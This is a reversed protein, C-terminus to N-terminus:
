YLLTVLPPLATSEIDLDRVILALAADPTSMDFVGSVERSALEPDVIVIRGRRYRNLEGVVDSLPVRDFILRERQWAMAQSLNVTRVEGLGGAAYRIARGPSVVARQSEDGVFAVEVQHEIVTVEISDTLHRVMFQTGLARALGNEAAVVFPRTESSDTPRATFHAVGSLLEVKRESDTYHVAAASAPGLHLTSGDSLTISRQAGPETRYDATLLLWPDGYWIRAGGVILLLCAALAVIQARIGSRRTSPSSASAASALAGGSGASTGALKGPAFRLAEMKGWATRAEEFAAAHDASAGLWRELDRQELHTLPGGGIRAVWTAAITDIEDQRDEPQTVGGSM